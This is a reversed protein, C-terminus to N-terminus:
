LEDYGQVPGEGHQTQTTRMDTSDLETTAQRTRKDTSDLETTTQRAQARPDREDTQGGETERM